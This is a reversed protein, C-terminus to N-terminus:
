QGTKLQYIESPYTEYVPLGFFQELTQGTKNIEAALDTGVFRLHWPEYEYGTINKKGSPYRIIFGYKYSNAALWKGEATYTFCQELTCKGSTSSVDAALGSQHESHGPRASFQEATQKGQSKVFNNYITTQYSYSRYGSYLVLDYGSILADSFLRELATAADDRLTQNSNAGSPQRLNAPVYDSPLIRGKNIVAWLSSPDNVSYLNKNFLNEKTKDVAKKQGSQTPTSQISNSQSNDRWWWVLLASLLILAILLLIIKDNKRSARTRSFRNIYM